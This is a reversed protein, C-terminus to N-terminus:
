LGMAQMGSDVFLVNATVGRALDSALFAAADGV